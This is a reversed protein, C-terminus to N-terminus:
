INSDHHVMWVFYSNTHRLNYKHKHKKDVGGEV